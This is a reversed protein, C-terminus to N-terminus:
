AGDTQRLRLGALFAEYEVRYGPVMQHPQVPAGVYKEAEVRDQEAPNM